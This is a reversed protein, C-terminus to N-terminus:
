MEMLFPLLKQSNHENNEQAKAINKRLDEEQSPQIQETKNIENEQTPM